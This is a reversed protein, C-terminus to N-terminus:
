GLVILEDGTKKSWLLPTSWNPNYVERKTKWAESGDKKNLALIYSDGDLSDHILYILDKYLIPSTATGHMNLPTRVPSTWVENGDHDYCLVGYSGFYIYVNESDVAPSSSAPSNQPHHPELKEAKYSQKWIVDGSERNICFTILSTGEIGTIYIHDDWMVPSSEGKPIEIKWKLNKDPGFEIPPNADVAVGSGNPGRFRDWQSKADASICALISFIITLRM